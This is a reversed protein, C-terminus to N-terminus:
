THMYTCAQTHTNRSDPMYIKCVKTDGVGVITADAEFHEAFLCLSCIYFLLSYCAKAQFHHTPRFIFSPRCRGLSQTPPLLHWIAVSADASM